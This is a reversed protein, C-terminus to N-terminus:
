DDKEDDDAEDEVPLALGPPAGERMLGEIQAMANYAIAMQRAAEEAAEQTPAAEPLYKGNNNHADSALKAFGLVAGDGSELAKKYQQMFEGFLMDGRASYLSRQVEGKAAYATVSRERMARLARQVKSRSYGTAEMIAGTRYGQLALEWVRERVEDAGQKSQTEAMDNLLEDFM